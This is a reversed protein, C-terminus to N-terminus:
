DIQYHRYRPSRFIPKQKTGLQQEQLNRQIIESSVQISPCSPPLAVCGPVCYGDSRHSDDYAFSFLSVGISKTFYGLPLNINDAMVYSGVERDSQSQLVVM